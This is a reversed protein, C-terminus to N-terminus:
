LNKSFECGCYDQRYLGLEKSMKISTLYGDRKKFDNPLYFPSTASSALTSGIENLVNVKKYPSVSLTSCFFNFGGKEATQYTKKLRLHYCRDCRKGGEKCEEFGRAIEIFEERRYEETLLEIEWNSVSQSNYISILKELERARKQYEELTDINPNYYFVTIRFFNSLRLLVSSSCPACCAHLLLRDGVHKEAIQQMILDYNPKATSTM